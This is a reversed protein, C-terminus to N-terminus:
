RPTMPQSFGHNGDCTRGTSAGLQAKAARAYRRGVAVAVLVVLALTFVGTEGTVYAAPAPDPVVAARQFTGLMANLTGHAIIVPWLSGSIWLLYAYILGAATLVALFIPVTVLPNGAPNYTTTLLMLPLHWVGHLFGVLLATRISGDRGLRRLMYGRWGIEELAAYLSAIAINIVLNILADDEFSLSLVGVLWALGYSGSLVAAPAIVALPWARWGPRHLALQAWGARSYGDPTLVLLLLVVGATPTLMNLAPLRENDPGLGTLAVAMGLTLVCFLIGKQRDTLSRVM